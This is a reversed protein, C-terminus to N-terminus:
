AANEPEKFSDVENCIEYTIGEKEELRKLIEVLMIAIFAINRDTARGSLRENMNEEALKELALEAERSTM